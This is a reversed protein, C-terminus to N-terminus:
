YVLVLRPLPQHQEPSGWDTREVTPLSAGFVRRPPKFHGRPCFGVFTCVLCVARLSLLLMEWDPHHISALTSLEEAACNGSGPNCIIKFM